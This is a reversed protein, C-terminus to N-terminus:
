YGNYNYTKFALWLTRWGLCRVLSSSIDSGGLAEPLDTTKYEAQRHILICHSSSDCRCSYPAIYLVICDQSETYMIVACKRGPNAHM